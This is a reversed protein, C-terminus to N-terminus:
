LFFAIVPAVVLWQAHRAAAIAEALTERTHRELMAALSTTAGILGRRFAEPLPAHNLAVEVPRM